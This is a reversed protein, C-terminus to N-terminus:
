GIRRKRLGSIFSGAIHTVRDAVQGVVPTQASFVMDVDARVAAWARRAALVALGMVALAAVAVVLFAVIEGSGAEVMQVYILWLLGALLLAGMMTAFVGLMVVLAIGSIARLVYPKSDKLKKSASLLELIRMFIAM